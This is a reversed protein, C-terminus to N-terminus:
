CTNCVKDNQVSHVEINWVQYAIFDSVHNVTVLYTDVKFMDGGKRNGPAFLDNKRLAIELKLYASDAAFM